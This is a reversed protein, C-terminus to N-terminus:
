RKLTVEVYPILDGEQRVVRVGKKGITVPIEIRQYQMSPWFSVEICVAYDGNKVTQGGVNKLDWQYVHHGIDISAGTVADVDSFKSREAYVPLDVQKERANGSFGSVYVTKVFAGAQDQIWVATQPALEDKFGLIFDISLYPPKLGASSSDFGPRLANFVQKSADTGSYESVVKAWQTNAKKQYAFGLLYMAESRVAPPADMAIIKQLEEIGADLKGVFFPMNVFVAARSLRLELDEPALAVARELMSVSEFALDTRFDTDLYIRPDYGAGAEANLLAILQRYLDIRDPEKAIAARLKAMEPRRDGHEKYWSIVQDIGAIIDQASKAPDSGPAMKIINECVERAQEYAGQKLLGKALLSSAGILQGASQPDQSAELTNVIIKLDEVGKDLQGAFKPVNVAWAGRNFRAAVNRPDIELARDWCAFARGMLDFMTTFDPNKMVKDGLMEGLLTWAESSKPYEAVAKDLLAIGEDTKEETRLTRAQELYSELTASFIFVVSLLTFIAIVPIKIRNM